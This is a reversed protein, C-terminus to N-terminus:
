KKVFKQIFQGESTTISVFYLGSTLGSVDIILDNDSSMVKQGPLNYIEISKINEKKVNTRLFIKESSPNPYINFLVEDNKIENIELVPNITWGIDKLIGICIPGPNHNKYATGAYPTMMENANGAPYTAENLHTISSGLSLAGVAHLRPKIGNNAAMAYPGKFYLQNGTFQSGLAASPNPFSDLKQNLNNVIFYDFISPLTDLNPWTYSTTLPAFDAATLTGFSGITTVKKALSLFNLGHCLEHMAVTIFDHKGAPVNGVSDYYWNVTSNLYIEIDVEGPNLEVGAISNALSTSYWYNTKPAGQFNLRGNPFTIGLSGPALPQLHVLVKIPVTSSVTNAWINSAYKFAAQAQPTFGTYTINFTATQSKAILSIAFFFILLYNKNM